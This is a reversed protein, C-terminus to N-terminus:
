YTPPPPPSGPPPPPPTFGAPAPSINVRRNKELQNLNSSGTFRASVPVRHGKAYMCQIYSNDYRQQGIYGSTQANSAGSAGGLLLGTGAGIAAGRGGGLAAGAVAGLATGIVASDVGSSISAQNPTTGGVQEYAYQRCTHEDFRFHEFTAGSGPLTLVSPGTPMNVCATLLGATLLISIRPITLM